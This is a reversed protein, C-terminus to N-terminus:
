PKHGYLLKYTLNTEKEIHNEIKNFGSLDGLKYHKCHLIEHIVTERMEESNQESDLLILRKEGLAIGRIVPITDDIEALYNHPFICHKVDYDSLVDIVDKLTLKKILTM